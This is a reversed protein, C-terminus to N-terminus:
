FEGETQSLYRDYATSGDDPGETATDKGSAAASIAQEATAAAAERARKANWGGKAKPEYAAALNYVLAQDEAFYIGPINWNDEANWNMLKRIM